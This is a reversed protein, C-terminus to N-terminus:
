KKTIVQNYIPTLRNSILNFTDLLRTCSEDPVNANQLQAPLQALLEMWCEYKADIIEIELWMDRSNQEDLIVQLGQELAAGDKLLKAVVTKMAEPLEPLNRYSVNTKKSEAEAAEEM